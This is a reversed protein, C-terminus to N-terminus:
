FSMELDDLEDLADATGSFTEKAQGTYGDFWQPNGIMFLALQRLFVTSLLIEQGSVWSMLELISGINKTDSDNIKGVDYIKLMEVVESVDVGSMTVGAEFTNVVSSLDIDVYTLDPEEKRFGIIRAYNISRLPNDYKSGGIEFVRIYGRDLNPNEIFNGDYMAEVGSRFFDTDGYVERIKSTNFTTNISREQGSDKFFTVTYYDELCVRYLEDVGVKLAYLPVVRTGPVSLDLDKRPKSVKRIGERTEYLKVYPFMDCENDDYREDVRYGFSAEVDGVSWGLWSAIVWPCATVLCKNYSDKFGVGAVDKVVTPAEYYCLYDRILYKYVASRYVTEPYLEAAFTGLKKGSANKQSMVDYQEKSIKHCFSFWKGESVVKRIVGETLTRFVTLAGLSDFQKETEGSKSTFKDIGSRVYGKEDM